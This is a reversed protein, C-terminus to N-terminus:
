GVAQQEAVAPTRMKLRDALVIGAALLGQGICYTLMVMGSTWDPMADPTFSRFALITDSALFFAGGWAIVPHCRSASAATGGLVLGYLAVAIALAGLVPWLVAIMVVWWLAYVISWAPLPRVALHKWFIWIFCLHALGFFLLMLPLTPGGPFFAGAGDGLWSFAIALFLLRYTGGWTSGRGAWLVAVALFPMLMLKTPSAIPDYEAFRAAVHVTSVVIYPVFGWWWRAPLPSVSAPSSSM